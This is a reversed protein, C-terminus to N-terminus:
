PTVVQIVIRQEHGCRPCVWNLIYPKGAVPTDITMPKDEFGCAGCKIRFTTKQADSTVIGCGSAQLKLSGVTVTKTTGAPIGYCGSLTLGLGMVVLVLVLARVASSAKM